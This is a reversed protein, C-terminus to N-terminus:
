PSCDKQRQPPQQQQVLTRKIFLVFTCSISTCNLTGSATSKKVADDDACACVCVLTTIALSEKSARQSVSQKEQFSLSGIRSSSVLIRNIVRYFV